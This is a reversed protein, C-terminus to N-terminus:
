VKVDWGCIWGYKKKKMDSPNQEYAKRHRYLMEGQDSNHLLM